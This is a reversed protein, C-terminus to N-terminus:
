ASPRRAACERVHRLNDATREALPAVQSCDELSVWEDYGVASLAAFLARLDVIGDRLPAFEAHSRGDTAHRRANKLHVHALYPGLM